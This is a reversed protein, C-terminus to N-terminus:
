GQKENLPIIKDDKAKPTNWVSLFDSLHDNETEGIYNLLMKETSHGTVAMILKNPLKNYHNTAFSRRCSHSRVLEWKQFMGVEKKHTKPNQRTGYVEQTLGSERCVIKMWENFRQDSIPRPFDGLRELIESVDSHIPIDVQKGTKSQTYRIFKQGSVHIQINANTLQMLDNVRCGTWCGIILWDRVNQLYDAGTFQKIQEIENETITVFLTEEEKLYFKRSRVQENITFGKDNADLCVTKIQRIDKAISNQSLSLVDNEFKVFDAKFTLDVDSILFRKKKHKEFKELRMLTTNLNVITLKSIPKGTKSNAKTKMETQYERVLDILYETKQELLPNKFKAIVDILWAKNIPKGSGKDTNLSELIKTKLKELQIKLNLKEPNNAKQQPEGKAKSWFIPNITYGTLTEIDTKGDRVRVYINAIEKESQLRFKITAM